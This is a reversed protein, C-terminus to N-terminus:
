KGRFPISTWRLTGGGGGVTHRRYGSFLTLISYVDKDLSVLCLALSLGGFDSDLTQPTLRQAM